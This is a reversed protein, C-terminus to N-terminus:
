TNDYVENHWDQPDMLNVQTNRSSEGNGVDGAAPVSGLSTIHGDMEVVLKWPHVYQAIVNKLSQESQFSRM